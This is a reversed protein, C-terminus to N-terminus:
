TKQPSLRLFNKILDNLPLSPAMWIENYAEHLTERDDLLVRSVEKAASVFAVGAEDQPGLFNGLLCTSMRIGVGDRARFARDGDALTNVLTQSTMWHNGDEGSIALGAHLMFFLANETPVM